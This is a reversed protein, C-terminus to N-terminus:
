AHSHTPPAFQVRAPVDALPRIEVSTISGVHVLRAAWYKAEEADKCDIIYYGGLVEKTEAFPGDTVTVNAGDARMTIATSAPQLPNAGKFKGQATADDLIAWHDATAQKREEETLRARKAEETYLLFMTNM